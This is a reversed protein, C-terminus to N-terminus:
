IWVCVCVCGELGRELVVVFLFGEGRGEKM